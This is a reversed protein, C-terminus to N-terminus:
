KGAKTPTGFPPVEKPGSVAPTMPDEHYASVFKGVMDKNKLFEAAKETDIETKEIVAGATKLGDLLQNTQALRVFEEPSFYRKTKADVRFAGLRFSTKFRIAEERVARTADDLRRNRKERMQELLDFWQKAKEEFDAWTKTYEADADEFEKVRTQVDKSPTFKDAM